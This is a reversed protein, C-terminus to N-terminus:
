ARRKLTLTLLLVPLLLALAFPLAGESQELSFWACATGAISASVYAVVTAANLMRFGLVKKNVAAALVMAVALNVIFAALATPRGRGSAGGTVVADLLAVCFIYVLFGRLTGRLWVGFLRWRSEGAAPLRAAASEVPIDNPKSM